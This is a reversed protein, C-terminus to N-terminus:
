PAKIRKRFASFGFLTPICLDNGRYVFILDVIAICVWDLIWRRGLKARFIKSIMKVVCLSMKLATEKSM